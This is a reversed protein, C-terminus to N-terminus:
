FGDALAGSLIAKRFVEPHTAAAQCLWGMDSECAFKVIERAIGPNEGIQAFTVPKLYLKGTPIKKRPVIGATVLRRFVEAPVASREAAEREQAFGELIVRDREAAARRYFEEDHRYYDHGVVDGYKEELMKLKDPNKVPLRGAKREGIMKQVSVWKGSPFPAVVRYFIGEDEIIKTRSVVAMARMKDPRSTVVCREEGSKSFFSAAVPRKLASYDIDGPEVLFRAGGDPSLHVSVQRASDLLKCMRRAPIAVRGEAAPFWDRSFFTRLQRWDCKVLCGAPLKDCGPLIRGAAQPDTTLFSSPICGERGSVKIAANSIGHWLNEDHGPLLLGSNVMWDQLPTDMDLLEGGEGIKWGISLLDDRDPQAAFEVELVGDGAWRAGRGGLKTWLRWAEGVARTKYTHGGARSQPRPFIDEKHVFLGSPFVKGGSTRWGRTWGGWVLRVSLKRGVAFDTWEVYEDGPEEVWEVGAQPLYNWTGGKTYINRSNYLDIELGPKWPRLMGDGRKGLTGEAAGPNSYSPKAQPKKIRNFM